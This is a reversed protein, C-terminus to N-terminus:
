AKRGKIEALVAAAIERTGDRGGFEYPVLRGAAFPAEVAHRLLDAAEICKAVGHREGLWELMLAASLLMATPNAKGTGVIDPATGHCPQFMAHKDGIDGSPAMGMGGILAAGLDSLIDGFQNETVMVDYVWPNRVLNLAAADIYLHDAVVDPFLKSREDFIKRSFAMSRFVNAKDVVTVKNKGGRERRRQALRFSFDFVRESGRRTIQMTDQAVADDILRGKHRSFFMGETQERIIVLDIDRARPDGLPLKLGPLAKIPRVGAYLELHERIDLQPAIETGDPYRIDPWGMAGFLIADAREAERMSAEPFATGSAEYHHAGGPVTTYDFGFGGVRDVLAALVELCATMVEAGIGDGPMVAIAFSSNRM